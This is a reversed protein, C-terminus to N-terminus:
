RALRAGPFFRACHGARPYFLNRAFTTGPPTNLTKLSEQVYGDWLAQPIAWTARNGSLQINQAPLTVTQNAGHSDKYTINAAAGSSYYRLPAYSTSPAALAQPDWALEITVSGNEDASIDFTPPPGGGPWNQIFPHIRVWEM